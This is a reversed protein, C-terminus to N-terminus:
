AHVEVVGRGRAIDLHAERFPSAVKNKVTKVQSRIGVFRDSTKLTQVKRIDLRISAYFKLANGGTTTERSGFMVGIKSRIQNVFVVLVKNQAALSSLKRLTQSMLRAQLAPVNSYKDEELESEPTLAAVSDIVILKVNGERALQTTISLAEEASDPQSFLLENMRVGLRAAYSVDVAHEADIMAVLDGARQFAAIFHLVLTTKGSSEPGFVEIIRGRPLGSGTGPMTRMKEDTDGTLVDDLVQWGTSVCEVNEAARNTLPGISGSGFKEQIGAIAANVRKTIATQEKGLRKVHAERLRERANDQQQPLVVAQRRPKGGM